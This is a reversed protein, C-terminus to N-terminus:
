ISCVHAAKQYNSDIQARIDGIRGLARVKADMIERVSCSMLLACERLSMKELVIMVYVVRDFADLSLVNAGFVTTESTPDEIKERKAHIGAPTKLAFVTRVAIIMTTRKAWSEAWERFVTKSAICEEFASVFCCEAMEHDATLLLALTYLRDVNDNFVKCFDACTAYDGATPDASARTIKSASATTFM